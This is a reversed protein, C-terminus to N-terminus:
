GSRPTSAPATTPLPQTPAQGHVLAHLYEPALDADNDWVVTHGELRFRRFVEADQLPRFVPGDLLGALDAIGGSGDNFALRIRHEGLYEAAIIHLM